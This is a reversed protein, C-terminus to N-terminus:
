FSSICHWLVPNLGSCVVDLKMQQIVVTVSVMVSTLDQFVIVMEVSLNRLVM